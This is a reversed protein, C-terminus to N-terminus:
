PSPDVPSQKKIGFTVASSNISRLIREGFEDDLNVIAVSSDPLGSFLKLKSLFYRERTGHYDLHDTTLNTFIAAAFEILDVRGQDLAHSSVEMVCFDFKRKELELLFRQNDLLNPTTNSSSNSTEQMRHNISGIVGCRQHAESFISELLFTVTTKGNTGTVGITKVNRSPNGYLRGVCLKFLHQIDDSQIWPVEDSNIEKSRPESSVIAIAGGKIAEPVFLNGDYSSGKMAFFLSQPEGKRSDCCIAQIELDPMEQPLPGSSHGELLEKLKM